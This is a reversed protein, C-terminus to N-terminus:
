IKTVLLIWILLIESFIQDSGLLALSTGVGSGLM